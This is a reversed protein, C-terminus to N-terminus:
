KIGTFTRYVTSNLVEQNSKKFIERLQPLKQDWADIKDDSILQTSLGLKKHIEELSLNELLPFEQQICSNEIEIQLQMREDNKYWDYHPYTINWGGVKHWWDFCFKDDMYFAIFKAKPFWECLLPIHYSFWHSKIIKIGYNWNSFPRKFESVVEEKTLDDLCDFNNGFEHYPGWYAGRHWGLPMEGDVLDYIRESDDDSTNVDVSAQIARISGSWRSGPAGMAIILDDGEYEAM